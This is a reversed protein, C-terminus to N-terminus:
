PDVCVGAGDPGAHPCHTSADASAPYGAHYIRCQVNNGTQADAPGDQPFLRCATLCADVNAYSGPCNDAMLGCYVDCYGGCVNGGGSGAHPCHTGPDAAAPFSAHYIRCQASDGETANPMGDAPFLACSGLCFDRNVFSGPCNQEMLDCYVDCIGGCVNGGEPMAHSCHLAPDAAAPFSAHYIRCQLSNGETANPAGDTRLASCANQCAADDAYYGECNDAMLGCYVDCYSGCVNGGEASAHPCHLGADAVAPFSAHYIRCQVSNGDTAGVAGDVPLEGCASMCAARDPYTGACNAEMNDCYVDCLSGCVGGGEAAAHPCHLAADMMAPAGGHYLRCQLSNGETAGPAGDTPFVSCANMCAARDGYTGACNQEMQDCYTECDDAPAGGMGGEGGMGGAGGAGGMGGEGGAGGMGGEGGAGGMGGEGGAGGMGGDVEAGGAGGAGDDGGGDDCGVALSVLILAALPREWHLKM